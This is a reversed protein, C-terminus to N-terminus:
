RAITSVFMYDPLTEPRPMPSALAFQVAQTVAQAVEHEITALTEENVGEELLVTRYLLIPDRDRKHAEVEAVQRYPEGSVALGINHEDFRYTNAVILTPGQGARARTVAYAASQYVASVDQGDVIEGPIGYGAARLA